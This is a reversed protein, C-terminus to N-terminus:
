AKLAKMATLTTIKIIRPNSYNTAKFTTM